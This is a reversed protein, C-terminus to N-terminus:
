HDVRKQVSRQSACRALWAMPGLHRYGAPRPRFEQWARRGHAVSSVHRLAPEATGGDLKELTEEQAPSRQLQIFVHELRVDDAIAGQDYKALALPHTSGALVVLKAEDIPQVVRIAATPSGAQTAAVAFGAFCALALLLVSPSAHQSIRRLHM